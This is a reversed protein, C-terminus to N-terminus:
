IVPVVWLNRVHKVPGLANLVRFLLVTHFEVTAFYLLVNTEAYLSLVIHPIHRFLNIPLENLSKIKISKLSCLNPHLGGFLGFTM